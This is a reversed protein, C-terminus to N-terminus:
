SAILVSAGKACNSWVPFLAHQVEPGSQRLRPRHLMQQVEEAHNLLWMAYRRHYGTTQVFADLLVHKHASSVERYQPAFQKLLARRSQLSM